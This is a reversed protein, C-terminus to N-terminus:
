KKSEGARRLAYRVFFPATLENILTACVITSIIFQTMQPFIVGFTVSTKLALGIAVGASPLLALGLYKRLNHNTGAIYTGMRAGCYKGVFRAVTLVFAAVGVSTISWFDLHAGALVFFVAIIPEEINEIVEVAEQSREHPIFNAVLFGLVMLANLSSAHVTETIGATFLIVGVMVGLMFERPEFFVLIIRLIFWMVTGLLMSLGIYALPECIVEWTPLALPDIIMKSIITAGAYVIIGLADDIAVIGLLVTTLSGKARLEHVLSLIAAPATAVVAAGLLLATPIMQIWYTESPFTAILPLFCLLALFVMVFAGLAEMLASWFIVKEFKKLVDFHLSSGIEFAIFALSIDVVIDLKYEVILRPLVGLVHPGFLIGFLLFGVLRPFRIAQALRGGLEGLIFLLGAYALLHLEEIPM